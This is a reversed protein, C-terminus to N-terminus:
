MFLSYQNRLNVFTLNIITAFVPLKVQIEKVKEKEILFGVVVVVLLFWFFGVEFM